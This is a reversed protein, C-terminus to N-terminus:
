CGLLEQPDSDVSEFRIEGDPEFGEGGFADLVTVTLEGDSAELLFEAIEDDDPPENRVTITNDNSTVAEFTTVECGGDDTETQVIQSESITWFLRTGTTDLIPSSNEWDGTWNPASSGGSDCAAFAFLFTFAFFAGVASRAFKYM